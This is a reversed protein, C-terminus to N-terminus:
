ESLFYKQYWNRGLHYFVSEYTLSGGFVYGLFKSGDNTRVNFGGQAVQIRGMSWNEGASAVWNSSDYWTFNGSLDTGSSNRFILQDKKATPITIFMYYNSILGAYKCAFGSQNIAADMPPITCYDPDGSNSTNRNTQTVQIRGTSSIFNIPENFIHKQWGGANMDYTSIIEGAQSYIKVEGGDIAVIDVHSHDNSSATVFIGPIVYQYGCRSNPMCFNACNDTAASNLKSRMTMIVPKDATMLGPSAHPSATTYRAFAGINVTSTNGNPWTVTTDNEIPTVYWEPTEGHQIAGYPNSPRPLYYEKDACMKPGVNFGGTRAFEQRIFGTVISDSASLSYVQLVRMGGITEVQDNSSTTRTVNLGPGSLKITTGSNPAYCNIYVDETGAVWHQPTVFVCDSAWGTDPSMGPGALAADSPLKELDYIHSALYPATDGVDPEPYFSTQYNVAMHQLACLSQVSTETILRPDGPQLGDNYFKTLVPGVYNDKDDYSSAATTITNDQNFGVMHFPKGTTAHKFVINSNIRPVVVEQFSEHTKDFSNTITLTITYTGDSAYTYVFNDGPTKNLKTGDGM